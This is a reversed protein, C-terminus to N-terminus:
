QLTRYEGRKELANQMIEIDFVDLRCAALAVLITPEDIGIGIRDAVGEWGDDAADVIYGEAVAVFIARLCPVM